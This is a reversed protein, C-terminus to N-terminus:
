LGLCALCDDDRRSSRERILVQAVEGGLSYKGEGYLSTTRTALDCLRRRFRARM